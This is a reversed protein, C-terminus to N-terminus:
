SPSLAHLLVLHSYRLKYLMFLSVTKLQVAEDERAYQVMGGVATLFTQMKDQSTQLVHCSMVHCATLKSSCAAQEVGLCAHLHRSCLMVGSQSSTQSASADTVHVCFIYALVPWCM